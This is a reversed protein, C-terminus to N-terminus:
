EEVKRRVYGAANKGGLGRERAEVATVSSTRPSAARAEHRRPWARPTDEEREKSLYAKAGCDTSAHRSADCNTEFMRKPFNTWWATMVFRMIRPVTSTQKPVSKAMTEATLTSIFNVM